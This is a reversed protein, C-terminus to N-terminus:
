KRVVVLLRLEVLIAIVVVLEIMSVVIVFVVEVLELLEVELLEEVEESCIVVVDEVVVGEPLLEVVLELEDEKLGLEEAIELIPSLKESM